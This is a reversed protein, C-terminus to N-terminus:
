GGPFQRATLLNARRAPAMGALLIAIDVSASFVTSQQGGQPVSLALSVAEELPGHRIGEFVDELVQSAQVVVDRETAWIALVWM